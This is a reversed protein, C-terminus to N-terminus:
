RHDPRRAHRAPPRQSPRKSTALRVGAAAIAGLGILRSAFILFGFPRALYYLPSLAGTAAAVLSATRLVRGPAYPGSADLGLTGVLAGFAVTHLPGGAAFGLRHLRRATDPDRGQTTTLLLSCTASLALSAAALAGATRAARAQTPNHAPAQCVTTSFVSLAAACILQGAVSTRAATRNNTFYRQVEPVTAWPRPYPDSARAAAGAVGAIFSLGAAPGAWGRLDREPATM